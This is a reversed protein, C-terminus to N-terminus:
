DRVGRIYASSDVFPERYVHTYKISAMALGLGSAMIFGLSVSRHRFGFLSGAAIGGIGWSKYDDKDRLATAACTTCAFTAGVGGFFLGNTGMLRLAQLLPSSGKAPEIFAARAAGYFSGWFLGKGSVKAAKILCDDGPKKDMETLYAGYGYKIGEEEKTM